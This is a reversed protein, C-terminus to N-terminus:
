LPPYLGSGTWVRVVKARITTGDHIFITPASGKIALSLNQSIKGPQGLGKVALVITGKLVGPFGTPTGVRLTISNALRGSKGPSTGVRLTLTGKLRSV